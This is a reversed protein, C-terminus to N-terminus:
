ARANVPDLGPAAGIGRFRLVAGAQESRKNTYFM